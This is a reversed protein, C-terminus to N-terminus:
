WWMRSGSRPRGAVAQRLTVTMAGSAMVASAREVATKMRPGSFPRATISDMGPAPATMTSAFFSTVM